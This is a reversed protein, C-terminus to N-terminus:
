DFVNKYKKMLKLIAKEKMKAEVEIHLDTDYLDPINLMHQPIIDIYDSHAGIKKSPSQESLHFVPIRNSKKWSDIVEPILEDIDEHLEDQHLQCYCNYHHNDYIVPIKTQEAIDLCDRLSYCKECNEIALRKKIKRPLDDFQDVWRRITAEKDGYTGGGHVCLIADDSLGMNDLIDAHMSLDRITKEFVKQSKAGVQNFQGPHMTLRHNVSKAYDGAQQLYEKCFDMTYEETEEDTFHPFMDSSLRLHHINNKVNWEILPIIDKVNAIAKEKAKDVTFTRRILSRNCTIPKKQTSLELNICCLGLKIQNFSIDNSQM